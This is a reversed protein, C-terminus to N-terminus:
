EQEVWLVQLRGVNQQVLRAVHGEDVKPQRPLQALCRRLLLLRARYARCTRVRGGRRHSSTRVRGCAGEAGRAAPGMRLVLALLAPPSPLRAVDSSARGAGAAKSEMGAAGTLITRWSVCWTTVRQYRAGSSITISSVYPFATSTRPLCAALAPPAHHRPPPRVRTGGHRM